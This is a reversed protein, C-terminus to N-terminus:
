SRPQIPRVPQRLVTRLKEPASRRPDSLYIEHHHGAFTLGRAPMITHHLEALKPAEDAFPGVHLHQLCLGEELWEMRVRSLDCASSKAAQRALATAVHELGIWDPLMLMLSWRWEERRDTAYADHVDAWWLGELPPVAYDRGLDLKSFFKIGYAAPYLAELAATYELGGPAGAGDVMLYSRATFTVDEWGLRPATFYRPQAKKLDLKASLERM